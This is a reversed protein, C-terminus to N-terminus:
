LALLRARERKEPADDESAMKKVRIWEDDVNKGIVFPHGPLILDIGRIKESVLSRRTPVSSFNANNYALGTLEITYYLEIQPVGGAAAPVINIQGQIEDWSDAAATPAVKWWKTAGSMLVSKNLKLSIPCTMVTATPVLVSYPSQTALTETSAPTSLVEPSYNIVYSVSGGTPAMCRLELNTFRFEVFNTAINNLVPSLTALTTPNLGLVNAGAVLTPTLLVSGSYRCINVRCRTSFASVSTTNQGSRRGGRKQNKGRKPM